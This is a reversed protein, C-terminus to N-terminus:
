FATAFFLVAVVLACLAYVVETTHRSRKEVSPIEVASTAPSRESSADSSSYSSSSAMAIEKRSSRETLILLTNSTPHVM